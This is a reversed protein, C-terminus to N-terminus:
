SGSCAEESVALNMLHQHVLNKEASAIGASFELVLGPHNLCPLSNITIVELKLDHWWQGSICVLNFDSSHIPEM